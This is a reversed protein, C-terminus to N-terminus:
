RNFMINMVPWADAAYFRHGGNGIVLACNNKAGAATYIKKLKAFSKIAPSVPFIEDYRGQVVVVPKPAFVGMVDYMECYKMLGPIYNDGCHYISMISDRFTGFCGSPMAHTVRPLLAAAYLTITGGGSNGMVGIKTRDVDKRTYLYDIGRDVDYVREGTLTKGLMLAHMVADHCGHSSVKKQKQERREGFSRQEICLAAVGNRMCSLGFDRDGEVPIAKKETDRDFAISNHMGTSHGQLCIMWKYPPVTEDPICVYATVDSYPESTFVIKKITGLEHKKEWVSRVNLPCRKEPWGGISNWLQARLERQWKGFDTGVRYSLPYECSNMLYRHYDTPSLYLNRCVEEKGYKKM